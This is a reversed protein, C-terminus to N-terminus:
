ITNTSKRIRRSIPVTAEVVKNMQEALLSGADEIGSLGDVALAQM